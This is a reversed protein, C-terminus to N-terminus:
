AWTDFLFGYVCLGLGNIEAVTKFVTVGTLDFQLRM